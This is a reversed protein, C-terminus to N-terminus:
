RYCLEGRLKEGDACCLQQEFIQQNCCPDSGDAIEITGGMAATPGNCESDFYNNTEDIVEGSEMYCSRKSYLRSIPTNSDWPEEAVDRGTDVCLNLNCGDDARYERQYPNYPDVRYNKGNKDNQNYDLDKNKYGNLISRLEYESDKSDLDKNKYGNYNPIPADM